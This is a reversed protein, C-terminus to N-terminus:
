PHRYHGTEPTSKSFIKQSEVEPGSSIVRKVATLVMVVMQFKCPLGCFIAQQLIIVILEVTLICTM